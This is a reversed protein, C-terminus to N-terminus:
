CRVEVLTVDDPAKALGGFRMAARELDALEGRGELMDAIAGSLGDVGFQQGDADVVEVLGDSFSYLFDGPKLELTEAVVESDQIVALALNRSHVRACERGDRFLLVDQMGCNVIRARTRGAELAMVVAALFMGRPLKAYLRNNIETVIEELALGKRTMTYFVDAVMPGGIAASLGHGTFDGLLVHQVDDGKFASFLVDGSTREMPMQLDRLFRGDFQESNRMGLLIDEIVTREEALLNNAAELGQQLEVVRRGVGVRASLEANNFPKTVYDDAGSELGAVVFEKGERATLLVLYPPHTIREARLQRCVDPGNLGPMEWDILAIRPADPRLMHEVAALGDEVVVTEFGWAKALGSLILRMTRDDDAILLRM